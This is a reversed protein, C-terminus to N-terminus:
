ELEVSRRSSLIGCGAIAVASLIVLITALKGLTAGRVIGSM